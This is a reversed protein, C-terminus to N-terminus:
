GPESIWGSTAATLRLDLRRYEVMWRLFQLEKEVVTVVM